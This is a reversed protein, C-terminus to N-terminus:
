ELLRVADRPDAMEYDYALSKSASATFHRGIAGHSPHTLYAKLGEVDDFEVIAAFEYDDPMMQEYGPLGHRVRRGVRFRRISPISDSAAGLAALLDHRASRSLGTKPSFLIVHAIM